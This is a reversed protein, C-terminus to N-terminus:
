DRLLGLKKLANRHDEGHEARPCILVSIGQSRPLKQAEGTPQFTAHGSLLRQSGPEKSSGRRRELGEGERRSSLSAPRPRSNGPQPPEEEGVEQSFETSDSMYSSLGLGSHELTASKVGTIRPPTLHKALAPPTSPSMNVPADVPSPSKDYVPPKTDSFAAPAPLIEPPLQVPPASSQASPPVVAPSQSPVAPAPSVPVSSSTLPPTVPNVDPASASWSKRTKPSQNPSPSPCSEAEESKLLGLKRLAEIRVRQPDLLMRDSSTPGPHGSNGESLASVKQSKLVISAPLKKPKPAVVPPSRPEAADPPLDMQAGFTVPKESPSLSVELPPKNVSVPSLSTRKMSARQHVLELDTTEAPKNTSLGLSSHLEVKQPEAPSDPEDMFDSPPPILALDMGSPETTQGQINKDSTVIKPKGDRDMSVCLIKASSTTKSSTDSKSLPRTHRSVLNLSSNADHGNVASVTSSQPESIRGSETRFSSIDHLGHDPEDNSLGSDEQVELAEITEVLYMLCAREEASLHEMSDESCASTMSIVSDCSGASVGSSLLEM